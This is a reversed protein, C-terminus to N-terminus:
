GTLEESWEAVARFLRNGETAAILAEKPEGVRAMEFAEFWCNFGDELFRHGAVSDASVADPEFPEARYEDWAKGIEIELRELDEWARALAGQETDKAELLQLIAEFRRLRPTETAEDEVQEVRTHLREEVEELQALPELHLVQYAEPWEQILARDLTRADLQDELEDLLEETPRDGREPAADLVEELRRRLADDSLAELDAVQLWALFDSVTM